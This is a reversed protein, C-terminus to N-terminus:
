SRAQGPLWHVRIKQESSVRENTPNSFHAARGYDGPGAGMGHNTVFKRQEAEKALCPWTRMCVVHVSVSVKVGWMTDAGHVSVSVKVGWMTDAGHVSVSRM